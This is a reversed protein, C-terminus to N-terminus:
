KALVPLSEVQAQSLATVAYTYKKGAVVQYDTYHHINEGKRKGVVNLINSADTIDMKGVTRYIVYYQSNSSQPDEFTLLNCNDHCKSVSLNKVPQTIGTQLQHRPPVLSFTNQVEEAILKVAQKLSATAAREPVLNHYTFFAYGDVHDKTRTYRIQDVIEAPNQWDPNEAEEDYLYLGLGIYLATDSQAVVQNWWDVVNAFPSLQDNFSWYVQPVIYDLWGSEVWLKSNVYESLSSLQVSSTNSGAGDTQAASAWVGFPSIGYAVSKHAKQNYQHVVEGLRYVLHNINAERWQDITQQPQRHQLYTDYDPSIDGFSITIIGMGEEKQYPYPYFFDDLHIADVDYKELVENVTAAMFDTVAPVGPNLFLQGNFFYVWDPHRRAYHDPSLRELLEEKSSGKKNSPTLHYPNFWAHFEIGEIHTMEIMWALPDFDGWDPKVGQVGTLYASWPNVGSAYFADGQPRVQFFIANLKLQKCRTIITLFEEKFLALDFINSAHVNESPFDVNRVTTIWVGRLEHKKAKVSINPKGVNSRGSALYMSSSINAYYPDYCNFIKKKIVHNKMKMLRWKM